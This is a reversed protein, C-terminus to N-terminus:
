SKQTEKTDKTTSFIGSEWFIMNNEGDSKKM